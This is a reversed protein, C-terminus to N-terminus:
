EQSWSRRNEYVEGKEENGVARDKDRIGSFNGGECTNRCQRSGAAMNKFCVAIAKGLWRERPALGLVFCTRPTTPM